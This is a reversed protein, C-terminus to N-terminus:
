IDKERLKILLELGIEHCAHFGKFFGRTFLVCQTNNGDKTYLCNILYDMMESTQENEILSLAHEKQETTLLPL